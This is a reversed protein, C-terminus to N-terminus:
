PQQERERQANVEVGFLLALNTIWMWVLLSVLGGLTGYTKDYSGFNALYLAFLISTAIWAAAALVGGPTVFRGSPLGTNPTVYYLLSFLLVVLSALVPWKALDWVDLVAGTIGLSNGVADVVPGTLVVSLLVLALTVVMGLTILVQMPRLKVFPRDEEVAWAVNSARTFAGIYGSASWLAALLGVGFLIGAARTNSAVSEIPGAFTEAASDPGLDRIIQTLERTTAESDGLLGLVSVLAILGPFLSLLGHYTLAAARDSMQHERFRQASLKLTRWAAQVTGGAAGERTENTQDDAM